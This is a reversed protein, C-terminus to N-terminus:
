RGQWHEGTALLQVAQADAQALRAEKVPKYHQEAAAQLKAEYAVRESADGLAQWHHGPLWTTLRANV